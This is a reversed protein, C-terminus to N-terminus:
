FYYTVSIRHTGLKFNNSSEKYATNFKFTDNLPIAYCYALQVHSCLLVGFGLDMKWNRKSTQNADPDDISQSSAEDRGVIDYWDFENLSLNCQPGAFAYPVVLASIGPLEFDYRLHLPISYYRLKDHMEKGDSAVYVMEQSYLFGVDFGFGLLPLDVRATVGLMYGGSIDTNWGTNMFGKGSADAKTINAGATVGFSLVDNGALLPSVVCMLMLLLATLRKPLSIIEPM